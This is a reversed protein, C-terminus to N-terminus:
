LSVLDEWGAMGIYLLQYSIYLGEDVLDDRFIRPPECAHANSKEPGPGFLRAVM